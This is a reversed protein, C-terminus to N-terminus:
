SSHRKTEALTEDTSAPDIDRCCLVLADSIESIEKEWEYRTTEAPVLPRFEELLLILRLLHRFIIGEQKQLRNSTVFKNFDGNFRLLIEGAAWVPIIRVPVLPYEYDFLRKLKEAFTLLFVREGFSGGFRRREERERMREEETKPVLEEVTAIGLELLRADLRERALPGPPLETQNPVRVMRAVNGPMELLSEFAQIREARDAIGLQSLLFSGYIPNFGKIRTLLDLSEGPYAREAKYVPREEAGGSGKGGTSDSPPGGGKREVPIGADALLGSFLGGSTVSSPGTGDTGTANSTELFESPRGGKGKNGGGPVPESDDDLYDDFDIEDLSNEDDFVGEDFSRNRREKERKRKRAANEVAEAQPTSSVGFAVPDPELRIFGGRWLTLLMDDLNKQEATLRKVGMLRRGVLNRVPTLDPNEQIMHALLRWPLPGRSTLSGPSMDRLKYFQAETWYQEAPNRTPMKKKLKKKAERLKPDRTDDPIQDYKEKFRAIKVDDPHALAFVYGHDDYQPRGARGFIQHATSSDILKKDGPPGKMLSPLLVSRAPLNIGAALTETCVAVSLLKRQYLNEIIRRYKPLVGAHHVGIGRLLLQRIKPGAGKSWDYNELETALERQRAGDIINKGKIVEATDWCQDRNFCFVLTPVMREEDTGRHMEEIVEPLFRDGVWEFTLPVKREDTRILSLKRGTTNRLWSIFEYANGVTASILLTRIHKPLLGLTFEWVIGREPDSFQHFEDMVVVSVDDFHFFREEPVDTSEALFRSPLSPGGSTGTGDGSRESGSSAFLDSGLLRNFLIEAVVVLLRADPNERRNGTVLGVDYRSFGWREASAQLEHFKQETLAILPTTYYARKGTKLAEFLGAEAILTKGMGTPACVLLGDGSDFWSLIAEEQFPYPLYPLQDLYSFALDDRDFRNEGADQAQNESSM